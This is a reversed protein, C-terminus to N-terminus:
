IEDDGPLIGEESTDGAVCALNICYRNGYKNKDPLNHGLHTGFETVVEGGPIVRVYETVVEADRFSPWGHRRSEELFERWSRGVPARFLLKSPDQADYFLVPNEESPPAKRDTPGPRLVTHRDIYSNSFEKSM